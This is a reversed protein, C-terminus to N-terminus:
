FRGPSGGVSSQNISRTEPCTESAVSRDERVTYIVPPYQQDDGLPQVNHRACAM